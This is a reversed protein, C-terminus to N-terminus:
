CFPAPRPAAPAATPVAATAPRRDFDVLKQLTERADEESRFISNYFICERNTDFVWSDGMRLTVAQTPVHEVGCIPCILKPEPLDGESVMKFKVNHGIFLERETGGECTGETKFRLVEGSLFRVKVPNVKDEDVEEITGRGSLETTVALGVHGKTFKVKKM